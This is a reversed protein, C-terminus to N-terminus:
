QARSEAKAAEFNAKDVEHQARAGKKMSAFAKGLGVALAAVGTGIAAIIIPKKNTTKAM